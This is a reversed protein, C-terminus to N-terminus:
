NQLSKVQSIDTAKGAGVRTARLHWVPSARPFPSHQSLRARQLLAAWGAWGLVPAGTWFHPQLAATLPLLLMRGAGPGTHLAGAALPDAPFGQAFCTSGVGGGPSSWASASFSNSHCPPRERSESTGKPSASGQM